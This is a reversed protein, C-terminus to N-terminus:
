KPKTIKIGDFINIHSVLLNHDSSYPCFYLEGSKRDVALSGKGWYELEVEVPDKNINIQIIM